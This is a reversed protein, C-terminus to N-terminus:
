NNIVTYGRNRSAAMKCFRFKALSKLCAYPVRISVPRRVCRVIIFLLLFTINKVSFGFFFFVMRVIVLSIAANNPRTNESVGVGEKFIWNVGPRTSAIKSNHVGVIALTRSFLLRNVFKGSLRRNGNTFDCLRYQTGDVRIEPGDRPNASCPPGGSTRGRPRGDHACDIGLQPLYYLRESHYCSIAFARGCYWYGTNFM